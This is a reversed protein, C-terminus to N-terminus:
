LKAEEEARQLIGAVDVAVKLPVLMRVQLLVQDHRGAVATIGLTPEQKSVAAATLNPALDEASMDLADAIRKLSKPDPLVRGRVWSSVRDRGVVSTYGRSDTREENWIKKALDSQSWGRALLERHLTESFTALEHREVATAGATEASPLYRKANRSM